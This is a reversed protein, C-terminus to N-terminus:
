IFILTLTLTMIMNMTMTLVITLIAYLKHPRYHILSDTIPTSCYISCLFWSYFTKKGQCSVLCQTRKEYEAEDEREWWDLKFGDKDYKRGSSDFGHTLEHGLTAVFGGYISALPFKTSLGLELMGRILGTAVKVQNFTPHYIANNQEEGLKM